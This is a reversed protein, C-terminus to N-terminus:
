RGIMQLLATRAPIQPFRSYRAISVRASATRLHPGDPRHLWRRRHCRTQTRHNRQRHCSHPPTHRRHRHSRMRLFSSRVRSLRLIPSLRELIERVIKHRLVAHSKLRKDRRFVMRPMAWQRMTSFQVIFIRSSGIVLAMQLAM